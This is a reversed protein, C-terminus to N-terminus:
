LCSPNNSAKRGKCFHGRKVKRRRKDMESTDDDFWDNCHYCTNAIYLIVVEEHPLNLADFLQYM